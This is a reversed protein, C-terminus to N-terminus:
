HEAGPGDAVITRGGVAEIIRVVAMVVAVAAAIVAGALSAAYSWWVPFELLLTTQGSRIKSQLGSSLQAAIVIVALAFLVEWLMKLWRNAGPSLANTFVDVSAHAASVQTLPLFAFIAFAIGAEVLEFDGNVPGVGLALLGDALGPALAHLPGHLLTNLARGAVSACTLLILATLVLGGLVAMVRAVGFTFRLV